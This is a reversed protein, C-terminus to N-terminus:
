SFCHDIEDYFIYSDSLWNLTTYNKLFWGLQFILHEFKLILVM